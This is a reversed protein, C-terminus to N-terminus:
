NCILKASRVSFSSSRMVQGFGWFANEPCLVNRHIQLETSGLTIIYPLGIFLSLVILHPDIALSPPLRNNTPRAPDVPSMLPVMPVSQPAPPNSVRRGPHKKVESPRPLHRWLFLSAVISYGLLMITTVVLAILRGTGTASTSIFLVIFVTQGAHSETELEPARAWLYLICSM